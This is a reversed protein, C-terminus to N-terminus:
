PSYARGLTQTDTCPIINTDTSMTALLTRTLTTTTTTTTTIITTRLQLLLLLQEHHKDKTRCFLGHISQRARYQQPHILLEAPRRQFPLSARRDRLQPDENARGDDRFWHMSQYQHNANQHIRAMNSDKQNSSDKRIAGPASWSAGAAYQVRLEPIRFIRKKQSM